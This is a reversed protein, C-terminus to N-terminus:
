DPLDTFKVRQVSAWRTSMSYERLEDGDHTPFNHFQPSSSFLSFKETIQCKRHLVFKVRSLSPFLPFFNVCFDWKQQSEVPKKPTSLQPQWSFRESQDFDLKPLKTRHVKEQQGSKGSCVSFKKAASHLLFFNKATFNPIEHIHQINERTWRTISVSTPSFTSHALFNVASGQCYGVDGASWVRESHTNKKRTYRTANATLSSFFFFFTEQSDDLSVFLICLLLSSFFTWSLMGVAAASKKRTGWVIQLTAKNSFIKQSVFVCSELWRSASITHVKKKEKHTAM